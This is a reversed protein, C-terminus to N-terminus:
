AHAKGSLERVDVAWVLVRDLAAQPFDWAGPGAEHEMVRQLAERKEADDEVVRVDGTGMISRYAFSYACATRGVIAGLPEDIEIAVTGGRAIARAKRRALASHAYVTLPVAADRGRWVFGYNVPVIFPGEEDFFGVRVVHCRELVDRTEDDDRIERDARRMEAM